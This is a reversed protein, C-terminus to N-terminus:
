RGRDGRDEGDGSNARASGSEEGGEGRGGSSGSTDSTWLTRTTDDSLPNRAQRKKAKEMWDSLNAQRDENAPHTSLWTPVSSGGTAEEMRNWLKISEQPPYGARAAYMMGIVDAEKEHSRSFPLVVGVYAGLGMAAVIM